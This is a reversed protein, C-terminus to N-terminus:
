EQPAPPSNRTRRLPHLEAALYAKATTCGDRVTVKMHNFRRAVVVPWLHYPLTATVVGPWRALEARHDPLCWGRSVLEALLANGAIDCSRQAGALMYELGLEDEVGNGIDIDVVDPGTRTTHDLSAVLERAARLDGQWGAAALFRTVAGGRLGTLCLRLTSPVRSLFVGVYQPQAAAPLAGITRGIARCMRASSEPGALAAAVDLVRAGHEASSWSGSRSRKWEVFVGPPRERADPAEPWPSHDFELWVRGVEGQGVTEAAAIQEALTHLRQWGASRLAVDAFPRMADGVRAADVAVSLDAREFAGGLAYEFYMCTVPDAPLRSAIVLLGEIGAPRLEKRPLNPALLEIAPTLDFAISM